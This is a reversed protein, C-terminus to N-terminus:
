SLQQMWRDLYARTWGLLRPYQGTLVVVQHIDKEKWVGMYRTCALFLAAYAFGAAVGVWLGQLVLTCMWAAAAALSSALILRCLERLPLRIAMLRVILILGIVYLVLRVAVHAVVAGALGYAPILAVAALVSVLLAISAFVARLRQNDTTSLLAGIAGGGLAFGAAVLMWRVISTVSTYEPGYVLLVIAEAWFAGTGAALLGLFQFYRLADSLITDVRSRGGAGFAHGMVPMLVSTLGSSVMDIGGRTLSVAIVFFGVEAAGVWRNLLYIEASAGGFAGVLTLVVTWLLHTNVRSLLEGDIRSHLPAPSGRRLMLAAVAYYGLSTATFLALYAPLSADLLYLMLVLAANAVSVLITSYAEVSFRGHGKAISIQFLYLSKAALSVVVVLNFLWVTEVWGAPKLLPFLALFCLIVAAISLWQRRFLWGHITAALQNSGGGLAEAVFRIGTTTLGNNCVIVLVGVLWVIYAYRGFDEPGMHRAILASVLLGIAYTVYTSGTMLLAAKLTALSGFRPNM